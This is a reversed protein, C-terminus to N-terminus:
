DGFYEAEPLNKFHRDGTLVKVGYLRSVALLICDVLGIGEIEITARIRGAEIAISEDIPLITSQSRIFNLKDEFDNRGLDTFRKRLEALVITPTINEGEEIKEQLKKDRDEGRFYEIWAYTDIISGM